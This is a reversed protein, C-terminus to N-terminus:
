PFSGYIAGWEINASYEQGKGEHEIAAIAHNYAVKASRSFLGKRNAQQRSGPALWYAKTDDEKALFDFFDRTMWDYYVYGKDKNAWDSLFNYCLTDVLLGGLNVGNADRWKRVMRALNVMNGKTLADLDGVAKIEPKPNTYRWRGGDNSDPYAFTADTCFFAPVVEFMMGDTFPVVVVQGDAGVKTAPYTTLISTRVAQLLASQGNDKRDNYQNYVAAPLQMIVDIDSCGRAATGRGYSGTYFSNDTESESGWFDKNLRKTIAKYRASVDSRNDMTLRECFTKFREGIGVVKEMRDALPYGAQRTIAVRSARHVLTVM